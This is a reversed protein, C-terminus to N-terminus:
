NTWSKRISILFCCMRLVSGLSRSDGQWFIQLGLQRRNWSPPPQSIHWLPWVRFNFPAFETSKQCQPLPLPPSPSAASHYAMVFKLAEELIPAGPACLCESVHSCGTVYSSYPPQLAQSVHWCGVAMLWFTLSLNLAVLLNCVLTFKIICTLLRLKHKSLHGVDM